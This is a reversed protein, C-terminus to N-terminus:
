ADVHTYPANLHGRHVLVLAKTVQPNLLIQHMLIIFTLEM